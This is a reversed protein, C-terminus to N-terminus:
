MPGMKRRCKGPGMEAARPGMCVKVGPTIDRSGEATINLGQVELQVQALAACVETM